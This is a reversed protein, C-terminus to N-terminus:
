STIWNHDIKAKAAQAKLTIDFFDKDLCINQFIKRCKRRSFIVLPLPRNENKQMHIDQKGLVM